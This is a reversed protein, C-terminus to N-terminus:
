GTKDQSEDILQIAKELCARCIIATASEYCPEEGIEVATHVSNGCEDCTTLAINHNILQM